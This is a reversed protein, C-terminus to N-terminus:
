MKDMYIDAITYNIKPPGKFLYFGLINSIWYWFYFDPTLRTKLILLWM